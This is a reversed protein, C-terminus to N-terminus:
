RRLGYSPGGASSCSRVSSAFQIRPESSAQLGAAIPVYENTMMASDFDVVATDDVTSGVAGVSASEVYSVASESDTADVGRRGGGDEGDYDRQDPDGDCECIQQFYAFVAVWAAVNCAVVYLEHGFISKLDHQVVFNFAMLIALTALGLCAVFTRWILWLHVFDPVPCDYVAYVLAANAVVGGLNVVYNKAYLFAVLTTWLVPCENGLCSETENWWPKRVFSQVCTLLNMVAIILVVKDICCRSYRKYFDSETIPCLAKRWTSDKDTPSSVCKIWAILKRCAGCSQVKNGVKACLDEGEGYTCPDIWRKLCEVQDM